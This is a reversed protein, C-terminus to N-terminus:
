SATGSGSGRRRRVERDIADAAEIVDEHEWVRIVHWGRGTLREDTDRDREKNRELKARWFEANRKPMTGHTPCGHWYCGDCLVAVMACPFVIDVERRVDILVRRNVFFRLGRAHM